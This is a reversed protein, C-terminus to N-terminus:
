NFKEIILNMKLVENFYCSMEDWFIDFRSGKFGNNTRLDVIISPDELVLILRLRDEIEKSIIDNTVAADGTLDYYLTRM